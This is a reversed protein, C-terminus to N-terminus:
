NGDLGSQNVQVWRLLPLILLGTMNKSLTTNAPTNVTPRMTTNKAPKPNNMQFSACLRLFGYTKGAVVLVCPMKPSKPRGKKQALKRNWVLSGHSRAQERFRHTLGQIASQVSAKALLGAGVLQETNPMFFPAIRM